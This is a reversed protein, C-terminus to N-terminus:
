IGNPFSAKTIWVDAVPDVRLCLKTAEVTKDERAYLEEGLSRWVLNTARQGRCDSRGHGSGGRDYVYMVPRQGPDYCGGPLDVWLSLKGNMVGFPAVTM